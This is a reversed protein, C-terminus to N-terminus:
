SRHFLLPSLPSLKKVVEKQRCPVASNQLDGLSISPPVVLVLVVASPPRLAVQLIVLLKFCSLHVRLNVSLQLVVISVPGNSEKQSM